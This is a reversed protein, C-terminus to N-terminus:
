QKEEAWMYTHTHRRHQQTDTWRVFVLAEHSPPVGLQSITELLNGTPFDIPANEKNIISGFSDPGIHSTDDRPLHDQTYPLLRLLGFPHTHSPLLTDPLPYSLPTPPKAM